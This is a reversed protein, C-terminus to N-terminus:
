WVVVAAIGAGVALGALVQSTVVTTNTGRQYADLDEYPLPDVQTDKYRRERSAALAYLSGAAVASVGAGVVLPARLVTPDFRRSGPYAPLADHPLLYATDLESSPGVWQYVTPWAVPRALGPRGDFSLHGETPPVVEVRPPEDAPLAAFAVLIPNGEQFMEEPLGVDPELHRAAAFAAETDANREGFARVGYLRHIEASLSVSAPQSLCPLAGQIADTTTRFGAIDLSDLDSWAADIRGRLAAETIPVPCGAAHAQATGLVGFLVSLRCIM